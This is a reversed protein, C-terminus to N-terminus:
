ERRSPKDEKVTEEESSLGADAAYSSVGKDLDAYEVRENKLNEVNEYATLRVKTNSGEGFLEGYNQKEFRNNTDGWALCRPFVNYDKFWWHQSKLFTEMIWV